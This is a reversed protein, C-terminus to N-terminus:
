SDLAGFAARNTSAGNKRRLDDALRDPDAGGLYRLTLWCDAWTTVWPGRADFRRASSLVPPKLMITQGFRALRRSFDLDEFLRIDRFGNLAEFATRRVFIAQDGLFWGLWRGRLEALRCTLDLFSSHRAFRRAFGGGSIHADELVKEIQGLAGPQTWTDAHLFLLIDGRAMRVGLNMQRGRMRDPSDVIRCGASTALATTNDVSGADV